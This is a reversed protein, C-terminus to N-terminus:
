AQVKSALRMQSPFSCSGLVGQRPEHLTGSCLSSSFGQTKPLFTRNDWTSWSPSSAGPSLPSSVAAPPQQRSSLSSRIGRHDACVTKTYQMSGSRWIHKHSMMGLSALLISIVLFVAGIGVTPWSSSIEMRQKWQSNEWGRDYGQLTRQGRDDSQLARKETMVNYPEKM